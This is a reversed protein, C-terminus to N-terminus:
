GVGDDDAVDNRAPRGVVAFWRRGEAMPGTTM